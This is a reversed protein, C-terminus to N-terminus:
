PFFKRYINYCKMKYGLLEDSLLDSEDRKNENMNNLETVKDDFSNMLKFSRDFLQAKTSNRFQFVHEYIQTYGKTKAYEQVKDLINKDNETLEIKNDGGGGGGYIKRNRSKNRRTKMRRTKNIRTKMRRTGGRKRM